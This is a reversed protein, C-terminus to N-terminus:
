AYLKEAHSEMLIRFWATFAEPETKMWDLLETREVWCVEAVEAPEPWPLADSQAVFVHDFEHETLGNDFEARYVFSLVFRVELDLGLEERSRRRAADVPTEGPRPHSCCANTWLGPSHYKDFARRQLLMRGEPDFVVVSLARHLLGLRHAELKARQGIERDYEDVLVVSEERVETLAEQSSEPASPLSSM